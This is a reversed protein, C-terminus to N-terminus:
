LNEIISEKIAGCIIWRGEQIRAKIEEFMKSDNKEIWEYYAASSSTFIFNEYEKLRDLASRFTAKVSQFGKQWGWLWVPDLHANGTMFMNKM